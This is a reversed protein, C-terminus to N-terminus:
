DKRALERITEFVLEPSISDLDEIQGESDAGAPQLRRARTKIRELLPAAVEFDRLPVVRDESDVGDVADGDLAVSDLVVSPRRLMAAFIKEPGGTSVVVEALGVACVMQYTNLDGLMVAQPAEVALFDRDEASTDAPVQVALGLGAAECLRQLRPLYSVPWRPGSANMRLFVYPTDSLDLMAALAEDQYAGRPCVLDKEPLAPLALRLGEPAVRIDRRILREVEAENTLDLLGLMRGLFTNRLGSLKFRVGSLWMSVVQRGSPRASFVVEPRLRAIRRARGWTKSESERSFYIRDFVGTRRLFRYHSRHTLIMAHAGPHNRKLLKALYISELLAESDNEDQALALFRLTKESRNAAQVLEVELLRIKKEPAPSAKKKSTFM